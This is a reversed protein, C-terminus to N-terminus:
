ACLSVTCNANGYKYDEVRYVDILVAWRGFALSRVVLMSLAAWKGVPLTRNSATDIRVAWRELAFRDFIWLYREGGSLSRFLAFLRCEARTATVEIISLM